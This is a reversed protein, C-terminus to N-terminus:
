VENVHLPKLAGAFLRIGQIAERPRTDGQNLAELIPLAREACDATWRGLIQLSEKSLDFYKKQNNMLPM